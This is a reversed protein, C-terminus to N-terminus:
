TPNPKSHIQELYKVYFAPLQHERAGKITLEKYGIILGLMPQCNM